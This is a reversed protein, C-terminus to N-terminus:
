VTRCNPSATDLAIIRHCEQHQAWACLLKNCYTIERRKEAFRRLWLRELYLTNAEVAIDRDSFTHNTSGILFMREVELKYTEVAYPFDIGRDVILRGACLVLLAIAM